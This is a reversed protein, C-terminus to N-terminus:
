KFGIKEYNAPHSSRWSADLFIEEPKINKEKNLADNISKAWVFRQVVYLKNQKEM